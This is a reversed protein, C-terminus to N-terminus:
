SPSINTMIISNSYPGDDVYCVAWTGRVLGLIISWVEDGTETVWAIPYGPAYLEPATFMPRVKVGYPTIYSPKPVGTVAQYQRSYIERTHGDQEILAHVGTIACNAGNDSYSLGVLRGYGSVKVLRTNEWEYLIFEKM